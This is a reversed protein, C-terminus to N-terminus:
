KLLLMKRTASFAGSELQYFYVGSALDSGNFSMTHRGAEMRGMDITATTRGLVDFVKLSTINAQTLTFSITTTPNFPNPYNQALSFESIVPIQPDDVDSITCPWQAFLTDTSGWCDIDFRYTPNTDDIQRYHNYSAGSRAEVDYQNAGFKYEVLRSSGSPFTITVSYVDDGATEDGNLGDDHLFYEPAINAWGWTLPPSGGAVQIDEVTFVTDTQTQVDVVYGDDSLRGLLPTIEVQFTVAVDQLIIDDATINSYYVLEPNIEGYGNGSPPPLNDPENGTPTFSRNSPLSEWGNNDNPDSNYNIKFKYEVAANIPLSNFQIRRSYIGPNETEETLVVAGGWQGLSDHAGRIVIQDFEPDFNGSLLQVQMNVRFTVEVDASESSEINNFYVVDLVQTDGAVNATRNDVSEWVDEAPHVIVYKFEISSATIDVDTKYIGDVLDLTNANGAWGNFDGRVVVDDNDPDFNGLDVQVSMNIQFTVTTAWAQAISFTLIAILLAITRFRFM